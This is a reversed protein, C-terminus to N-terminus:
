LEGADGLKPTRKRKESHRERARRRELRERKKRRKGEEGCPPILIV